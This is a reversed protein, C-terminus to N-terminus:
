QKRRANKGAAFGRKGLPLNLPLARQEGGLSAGDLEPRRRRRILELRYPQGAKRRHVRKPSPAAAFLVAREDIGGRRQDFAAEDHLENPLRGDVVGDRM